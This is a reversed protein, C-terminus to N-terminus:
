TTLSGVNSLYTDYGYGSSPYGAVLVDAKLAAEQSEPVLLTNDEVKYQTIGNDQFYTLIASMDSDSLDTFLTTYPRNSVVAMVVAVVILLALLGSSLIIKTKKSISKWRQVATAAIGKVKDLM